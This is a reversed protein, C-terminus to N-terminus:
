FLALYFYSGCQYVDNKKFCLILSAVLSLAEYFIIDWELSCLFASDFFCGLMESIETCKGNLANLAAANASFDLASYHLLPAPPVSLAAKRWPSPALSSTWYFVGMNNAGSSEMGVTRTVCCWVPCLNRAITYLHFNCIGFAKHKKEDLEKLYIMSYFIFCMKFNNLATIKNIM